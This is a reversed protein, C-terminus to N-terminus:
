VVLEGLDKGADTVGVDFPGLEGNASTHGACSRPMPLRHSQVAITYIPMWKHFRYVQLV